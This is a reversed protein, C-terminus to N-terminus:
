PAKTSVEVPTAPFTWSLTRDPVPEIRVLSAGEFWSLPGYTLRGGALVPPPFFPTVEWSICTTGLVCSLERRGALDVAHSQTRGKNVITWTDVDPKIPVM